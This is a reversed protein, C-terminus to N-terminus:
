AEAEMAARLAKLAAIIHKEVASVSIGLGSAIAPYTMEEFRHLLFVERTRAPLGAIVRQARILRDRDFLIRESIIEPAINWRESRQAHHHSRQQARKKLLNGAVVFVHREMDEIAAGSGRGQLSVLVDQVLDEVEQPPVRKAFYRRLAAPFPSPGAAEGLIIPGAKEM